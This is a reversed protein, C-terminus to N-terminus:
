ETETVAIVTAGNKEGFAEWALSVPIITNQAFFGGGATFHHPGHFEFLFPGGARLTKFRTREHRQGFKVKDIGPQWSLLAFRDNETIDIWGNM